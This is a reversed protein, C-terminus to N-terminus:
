IQVRLPLEIEAHAYADGVAGIMQQYLHDQAVAEAPLSGGWCWWRGLNASPQSTERAAVRIRCRAHNRGFEKPEYLRFGEHGARDRGSTRGSRSHSASVPQTNSDSQIGIM